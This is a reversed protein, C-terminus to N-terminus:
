CTPTKNWLSLRDFVQTSRRLSTSKTWTKPNHLLDAKPVRRVALRKIRASDAIEQKLLSCSLKSRQLFRM